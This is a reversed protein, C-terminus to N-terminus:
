RAGAVVAGTAGLWAFDVGGPWADAAAGGAAPVAGAAAGVLEGAAEVATLVAPRLGAIARPGPEPGAPDVITVELAGVLEDPAALRALDCGDGGCRQGIREGPDEVAAAEELGCFALEPPGPAVAM